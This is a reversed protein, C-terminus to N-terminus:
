DGPTPLFRPEAEKSMSAPAVERIRGAPVYAERGLPDKYYYAGGKLKPKGRADIQEGNNLTIIYHRACGCLTVLGISLLLLPKKMMPVFGPNLDHALLIREREGCPLAANGSTFCAEVDGARSSLRFRLAANV